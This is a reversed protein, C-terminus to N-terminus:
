VTDEEDGSLADVPNKSIKELDAIKSIRRKFVFKDISTQYWSGLNNWLKAGRFLPSSHIGNNRSRPLKFLIKENSRMGPRRARDDVWRPNLSMKLMYNLLLDQRRRPLRPISSRKYMADETMVKGRFCIKLGRKQLKDLKKTLDKNAGDHVFSAYDFLSLVTSKYVSICVNESM